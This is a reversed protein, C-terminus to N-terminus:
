TPAPSACRTRSAACSCTTARSRRWRPCCRHAGPRAPRKCSADASEVARRVRGWLDLEWTADFGGQFLDFAPIGGSSAFGGQRGGLGNSGTAGSGGAGAAGGAGGGGFASIAGKSSPKERTHSGNGNITPYQDAGTIGRQARSQALRATAAQVDLNGEAARRVLGTLVPDGFGQWWEPDLPEAVPM